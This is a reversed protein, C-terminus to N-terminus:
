RVCGVSTDVSRYGPVITVTQTAKPQNRFQLVEYKHSLVLILVIYFGYRYLFNFIPFLM